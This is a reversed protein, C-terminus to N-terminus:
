GKAIDKGYNALPPREFWGRDIMINLGDESYKLIEGILRTYDTVLDSRLSESVAIGYNGAGTHGMIGFHYMMLKESFPSERSETVDQSISLPMSTPLSENELYDKFVQIHKLSIDKGREMYERIERSQAVQSFAAAMCAGLNNTLINSHLSTVETAALPRFGLLELVFKQKQVFEVEEPYNLFPPRMALGKELLVKTTENHLEISSTLCKSCYSVVDWRYLNSFIVSHTSIGGKVMNKVYNLCFVDSFLRKADLNVDEESFGKPLPIGEGEFMQSIADMHQHSLDLAHEILTRINSDEVHRLFYTFVCASMSEGLYNSWLYGLEASTLRTGHEINMLGM